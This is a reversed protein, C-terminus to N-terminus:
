SIQHDQKLLIKPATTEDLGKQLDRGYAISGEQIGQLYQQASVLIHIRGTHLGRKVMRIRVHPDHRPVPPLAQHVITQVIHLM